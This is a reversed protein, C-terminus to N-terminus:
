NQGRCQLVGPTCYSTTSQKVLSRPTVPELGVSPVTNQGQAFCSLLCLDPILVVLCWVWGLVSCPFTVFVCYFVVFLLVLLDAKGAPSWLAVIFLCSLMAFM